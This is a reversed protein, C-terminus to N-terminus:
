WTVDKVPICIIFLKQIQYLWLTSSIFLTLDFDFNFNGKFSMHIDQDAAKGKLAFIPTGVLM